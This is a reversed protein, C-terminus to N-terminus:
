EVQIKPLTRLATQQGTAVNVFRYAPVYWGPTVAVPTTKVGGTFAFFVKTRYGNETPTRNQSPLRQLLLETKVLASNAGSSTFVISREGRTTTVTNADGPFSGPPPTLPVTGSPNIQLFKAALGNFANIPTQHYVKGTRPNHKTYGAVYEQWLEVDAEPMTKFAEAAKTLAERVAQQATTNPNRGIQHKRLVSGTRGAVYVSSGARGRYEEVGPSYNVSAM